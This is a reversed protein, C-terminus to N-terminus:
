CPCSYTTLVLESLNRIAAHPVASIRQAVSKDGLLPKLADPVEVLSPDDKPQVSRARRQPAVLFTGPAPLPTGQASLLPAALTSATNYGGSSASEKEEASAAAAAAAAARQGRKGPMATMGTDPRAAAAALAAQQQQQQRPDHFLGGAASNKPARAALAARQGRPGAGAMNSIHPGLAGPQSALQPVLGPAGTALGSLGSALPLGGAGFPRGHERYLRATLRQQDMQARQEDSM